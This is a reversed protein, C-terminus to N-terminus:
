WSGVSFCMLEAIYLLQLDIDPDELRIEDSLIFSDWSNWYRLGTLQHKLLM